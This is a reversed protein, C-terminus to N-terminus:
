KVATVAAAVAPQSTTYTVQTFPPLCADVPCSSPFSFSYIRGSNIPQNTIDLVQIEYLSGGTVTPAIVFDEGL